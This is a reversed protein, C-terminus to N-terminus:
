LHEAESFKEFDLGPLEHGEQALYMIARTHSEPEGPYAYSVHPLQQFDRGLTEIHRIRADADAYSYEFRCATARCSVGVLKVGASAQAAAVSRAHAEQASAWADDRPQAALVGDLMEARAMLWRAEVEPSPPPPAPERSTRAPAGEAPGAAAARRQEARANALEVGLRRVEGRLLDREEAIPDVVSEATAVPAPRARRSKAVKAALAGALVVVALAPIGYRRVPSM